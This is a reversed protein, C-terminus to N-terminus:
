RQLTPDVAVHALAQEGSAQDYDYQTVAPGLLDLNSADLYPVWPVIEETLRRDLAIWCEQREQGALASCRDIEADVSPVGGPPVSLGLEEAQGATIGVLSWNQNGAPIIRRGDHLVMFGSPDAYDKSWGGNAALPIRRAPASTIAYSASAPAARPTIEIGILGASQAIIPTMTDWPPESQTVLVVDSCEPADCVGDQDRDYRSQRMHEKARDLDGTFPEEQFPHHESAPLAGDILSGPLVHTAIEGAIPGGWTRRLGDLDMVANMARRVHVDDFPPETLTMSLYWLRDASNVRLRSTAADERGERQVVTAPPADYSSELLGRSIREFIDRRSSNITFLFGDPLAERIAPDDTAPDYSPNRVLSLRASPDYGSIPELAACSSADLAESGEIMYPGTAILHRAYDGPSDDCRAVEEPIPATAPLSLRDLFDGTPATLTFSITREDPTTIGSIGQAKGEAFATFGAIVEYYFGYQAVLSPTAIREFAYAVDRSTVERDVPPGFRVGPKLRFTYTLGAPEPVAEALDPV